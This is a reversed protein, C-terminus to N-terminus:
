YDQTLIGTVTRLTSASSASPSQLKTATGVPNGRGMKGSDLLVTRYTDFGLLKKPPHLPTPNFTKKVGDLTTVTYTFRRQGPRARTTLKNGRESTGAGTVVGNSSQTFSVTYLGGVGEARKLDFEYDTGGLTLTGTANSGSFEATVSAEGDGEATTSATFTGTAASGTFSAAEGFGDCTYAVVENQPTVSIALFYADRQPVGKVYPKVGKVVGVYEDPRGAEGAGHAVHAGAGTAVAVTLGLSLPLALALASTIRRM